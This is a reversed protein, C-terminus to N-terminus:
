SLIISVEDFFSDKATIMCPLLHFIQNLVIKGGVWNVLLTYFHRLRVRWHELANIAFLPSIRIQTEDEPLRWQVGVAGLDSAVLNENVLLQEHPIEDRMSEDIFNTENSCIPICIPSTPEPLVNDLKLLDRTLKDKLLHM